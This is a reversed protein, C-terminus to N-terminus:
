SLGIGVGNRAGMSQNFIRASSLSGIPSTPSNCTYPQFKGVFFLEVSSPISSAFLKESPIGDTECFLFNESNLESGNTRFLFCSPIGHFLFLLLSESNQEWRNESSFVVRFDQGTFCFLLLSRSNTGFCKSLSFM